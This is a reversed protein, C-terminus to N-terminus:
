CIIRYLLKLIIFYNSCYFLLYKLYYTLVASNTFNFEMGTNLNYNWVIQIIVVRLFMNKLKGM